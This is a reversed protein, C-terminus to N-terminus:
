FFSIEAIHKTLFAAIEEAQAESTGAKLSIGLYKGQIAPLDPGRMMLWPEGSRGEEVTFMEPVVRANPM